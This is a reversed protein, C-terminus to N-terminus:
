SLRIDKLTELQLSRSGKIFFYDYSNLHTLFDPKYNETDTYLNFSKLSGAEKAYADKFRGIFVCNGFGMELVYKGVESHFRESEEGLENMDGLVVCSDSAKAGISGLHEKFGDLAAIMSSPNANYADLFTKKKGIEIWESRNETPVFTEISKSIKSKDELIESAILYALAMNWFNHQGTINSNKIKQGNVIAVGDKFDIPFNSNAAGFSKINDEIVLKKLYEDNTNLYFTECGAYYLYGEEKFVGEIGEFFELHTAGINTTVGIQPKLIDCLVKIEGPHNSGLEIIAYKTKESILFLTFPVGLHNNNNKQTCIVSELKGVENFTDALLHYLMEKTTTKGNSGSIAIVKGGRRQFTKSVSSGVEQIFDVISKVKIFNIENRYKEIKKESEKNEEYAIWRCKSDVLKQIHDLPNFREGVIAIFLSKEGAERNDVKVSLNEELIESSSSIFSNFNKVDVLNFM